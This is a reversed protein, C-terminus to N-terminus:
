VPPPPHRSIAHCQRSIAHSPTLHHSILAAWKSSLQRSSFALYAASTMGIALLLDDFALLWVTRAHAMQYSIELAQTPTRTPTPALGLTRAPPMQYSIERTGTAALPAMPSALHMCTCAAHSIAPPQRSISIERAQLPSFHGM